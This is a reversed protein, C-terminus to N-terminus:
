VAETLQDIYVSRVTSKKLEPTIKIVKLGSRAILHHPDLSLKNLPKLSCHNLDLVANILHEELFIKLTKLTSGYFFEINISKVQPYTAKLQECIEYFDDCIHEYERSRRSLMLLDGISDSIKFFHIFTLQLNDDQNQRCLDSICALSGTNFDTPILINKM